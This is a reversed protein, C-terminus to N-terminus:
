VWIFNPDSLQGEKSLSLIKMRAIKSNLAVRRLFCFLSGSLCFSMSTKCCLFLLGQPGIFIYFTPCQLRIPCQCQLRTFCLFCFVYLITLCLFISSMSTKYLTFYFVNFDQLAYFYLVNFDKYLMFISSMSTKYLMFISSMLTKYLMFVSSTSTKYLTFVYSM